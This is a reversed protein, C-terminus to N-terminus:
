LLGVFCVILLGILMAQLAVCLLILINNILQINNKTMATINKFPM